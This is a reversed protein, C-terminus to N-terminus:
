WSLLKRLISKVILILMVMLMLYFLSKKTVNSELNTTIELNRIQEEKESSEKRLARFDKNFDIVKMEPNSIKELRSVMMSINNLSVVHTRNNMLQIELQNQNKNKPNLEVGNIIVPCNPQLQLIGTQNIYTTNTIQHVCNERVMTPTNISLFYTNEKLQSTVSNTILSVEGCSALLANISANFLINSECDRDNEFHTVPSPRCLHTHNGTNICEIIEQETITIYTRADSNVLYYSNAINIMKVEDNMRMPLPIIKSLHYTEKKIRPITVEILIYKEMSIGSIFLVKELQQLNEYVFESSDELNMSVDKVDKLLQRYPILEALEGRLTRKISSKIKYILQEHALATLTALDAISAFNASSKLDNEINSMEDTTNKIYVYLMELQSRFNNLTNETLDISSKILSMNEEAFLKTQNQTHLVEGLKNRIDNADTEDLLGFVPKLVYHTVSELYADRRRRKFTGDNYTREHSRIETLYNTDMTMRELNNKHGTMQEKCTGKIPLQDCLLEMEELCQKYLEIQDYFETLDYHYFIKWNNYSIHAPFIDLVFAGIPENLTKYVYMKAHPLVTLIIFYQTVLGIM